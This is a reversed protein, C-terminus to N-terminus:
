RDTGTCYQVHLVAKLQKLNHSVSILNMNKKSYYLDLLDFGNTLAHLSEESSSSKQSKTVDCVSVTVSNLTTEQLM